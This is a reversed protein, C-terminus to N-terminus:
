KPAPASVAVTASPLKSVTSVPVEVAGVHDGQLDHVVVRIFYEGKAPVSVEEHFPIGHQLVKLYQANDFDAKIPTGLSNVLKGDNDYVFIVFELSGHRRGDATQAFSIGHLGAALNVSYRRYPGKLDKSGENGRVLIEETITSMPLVQATFVIETPAPSGYMLALQMSGTTAPASASTASASTLPKGPKQPANPDDAYYGPRYTLNLGQQRLKVEIKRFDGNWKSDGPTYTLTYYNSGDNIANDVGDMIGNSDYLARGGTEYAIENMDTHENFLTGIDECSKTYLLGRGDIPYLAVQARALLNLTRRYEPTSGVEPAYRTGGCPVHPPDPMIKLPFGGSFWILNKRGPIGALYRALGNLADMTSFTSRVAMSKMEQATVTLAPHSSTDSGPIPQIDALPAALVPSISPAAKKDVAAELLERDDTFGQLLTLRRTLKFLAIRTGPKAKKLYEMLQNRVRSQAPVPTNLQDFLIINLAAGGAVAPTPTFNTFVGAPMVPMPEIKATEAATPASHEEFSKVMQAAKNELVTFDSAKLSHVPNHNQDTVVVDVIVLQTGTRLTATASGSQKPPNPPSTQISTNQFGQALTPVVFALALLATLLRPM